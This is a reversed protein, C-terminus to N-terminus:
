LLFPMVPIVQRKGILSTDLVHLQIEKNGRGQMEKTKRFIHYSVIYSATRAHVERALLTHQLRLRQVTSDTQKRQELGVGAPLKCQLLVQKKKM